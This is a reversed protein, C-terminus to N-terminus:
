TSVCGPTSSRPEDTLTREGSSAHGARAGVRTGVAHTRRDLLDESGLDLPEAIRPEAEDRDGLDRHRAIKPVRLSVVRHEALLDFYFRTVIRKRARRLM